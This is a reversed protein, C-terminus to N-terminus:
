IVLPNQGVPLGNLKSHSTSIPSRAVNVSRYAAGSNFYEVLFLLIDTLPVSLPDLKRKVCWGSCRRWASQYTKRTSPRSTSLLIETVNDPIGMTQHQGRLCSVRSLTTQPVHPSDESPRSPGEPPTQVLLSLLLPWWPQAPWIPAVLVIDVKDQTAKNLVAPILNFPLFAYGVRM